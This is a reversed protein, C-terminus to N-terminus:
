IPSDKLNPLDIRTVRIAHRLRDKKPDVLWLGEQKVLVGLRSTQAGIGHMKRALGMHTPVEVLISEGVRMRALTHNLTNKPKM